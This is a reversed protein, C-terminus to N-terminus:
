RADTPADSLVVEFGERLAHQYSYRRYNFDLFLVCFISANTGILQFNKSGYILKNRCLILNLNSSLKVLFTNTLLAYM